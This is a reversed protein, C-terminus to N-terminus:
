FILIFAGQGQDQCYSKKKLKVAFAYVVPSPLPMGIWYEQRSVEMSPPAQYAAIWPTALLRARNLPKM